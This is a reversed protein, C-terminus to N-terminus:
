QRKFNGSAQCFYFPGSDLIFGYDAIRRYDTGADVTVNLKQANGNWHKPENYWALSRTAEASTILSLMSLIFTLTQKKMNILIFFDTVSQIDVGIEM